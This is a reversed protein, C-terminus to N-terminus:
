KRYEGSKDLGAGAIPVPAKFKRYKDCPVFKVTNNFECHYEPQGNSPNVRFGARMLDVRILVQTGDELRFVVTDNGVAKSSLYTFEVGSV